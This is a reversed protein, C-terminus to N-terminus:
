DATTTADSTSSPSSPQIEPVPASVEIKQKGGLLDKLQDEIICTKGLCLEPTTVKEVVLEKIIVIASKFWEVLFNIIQAFLNDPAEEQNVIEIKAADNEEGGVSSNELDVVPEIINEDSAPLTASQIKFVATSSNVLSDDEGMIAISYDGDSIQWYGLDDQFEFKNADCDAGATYFPQSSTASFIQVKLISDNCTGTIKIKKNSDLETKEITAARALLGRGSSLLTLIVTLAFYIKWNSKFM